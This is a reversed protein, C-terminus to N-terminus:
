RSSKGSVGRPPKSAAAIGFSVGRLAAVTVLGMQYHKRVHEFQVIPTPM